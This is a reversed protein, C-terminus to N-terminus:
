KKQGNNGNKIQGLHKGNDHKECKGDKCKADKQCKGDHKCNADHKKGDKCDKCTADHKKECKECKEAKTQPVVTANSANIGAFCFIMAIILLYRKM